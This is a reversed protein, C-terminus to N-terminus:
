SKGKQKHYSKRKHEKVREPNNSIFIKVAAIECCPKTEGPKIDSCFKSRSDTSYFENGCYACTKKYQMVLAKYKEIIEKEGNLLGVVDNVYIKM